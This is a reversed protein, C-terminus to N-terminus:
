PVCAQGATSCRVGSVRSSTQVRSVGDDITVQVTIPLAPYLLVDGCSGPLVTKRTGSATAQSFTVQVPDGDPDGANVPLPVSAVDTLWRFQGVCTSGDASWKTCNCFCSEVLGDFTTASPGGDQINVVTPMAVVEWGDSARMTVRHDGIFTALPPLGPAPLFPLLCDISGEGGFFSFSACATDGLSQDNRIPDGDPDEVASLPATAVYAHLTRDYRHGATVAAAARRLVPPRNGIFIPVDLSASAGFPDACSAALSFYSSGDALRFDRPASVDTEFRFSTVGGTTTAQGTTTRFNGALAAAVTPGSVPDGDPDIADFTATGAAVFCSGSPGTCAGVTHDLAVTGGAPNSALRLQPPRNGILVPFGAETTGGNGDSAVVRITRSAAGILRTADACRTDFSVAGAAVAGLQSACGDTGQEDLSVALSVQDGDPDTATLPLFGSALYAGGQYRHDLLLPQVTILPPRDGIRAVQEARTILGGASTVRLQFRWTGAVAGGPTTVLAETSLSTAGPSFTVTAGPDTGPAPIARWGFSLTGGAPDDAVASLPLPVPSGAVAPHCAFPTGGCAHDVSLEPGATVVPTGTAAKVDVTERAAASTGGRGDEAVVTVEYTGACWFILELRQGTSPEPEAECGAGIATVSWTFRSVSDGTDPDTAAAELVLLRNTTPAPPLQLTVVPPRNTLCSSQVCLAGAGCEADTSCGRVAEGSGGCAALFLALFLCWPAPAGRRFSEM